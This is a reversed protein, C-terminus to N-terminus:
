SLAGQTPPTNGNKEQQRKEHEFKLIADNAQRVNSAFSFKPRKRHSPGGVLPLGHKNRQQM